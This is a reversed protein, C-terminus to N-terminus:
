KVRARGPAVGELVLKYRGQGPAPVKAKGVADTAGRRVSGDSFEIRFRQNAVPTGDRGVLAFEAAHPSSAAANLTAAKVQRAAPGAGSVKKIQGGQLKM